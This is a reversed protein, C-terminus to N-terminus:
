LIGFLRALGEYKEEEIRMMKQQLHKDYKDWLHHTRAELWPPYVPSKNRWFQIKKAVRPNARHRFVWRLEKGTLSDDKQNRYEDLNGSSNRGNTNIDINIYKKLLREININDLIFHVNVDKVLPDSGISVWSLGGKCKRGIHLRNYENTEIASCYKSNSKLHNFFSEKYKEYEDGKAYNCMNEFLYLREQYEENSKDYENRIFNSINNIESPTLYNDIVVPPYQYNGINNYYKAIGFAKVENSYKSRETNLGYILDGIRFGDIFPAYFPM